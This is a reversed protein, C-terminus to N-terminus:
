FRLRATVEANRPALVFYRATGGNVDGSPFALRDFLNRGQVLVDHRGLRFTVGGDLVFFAPASLARDTTPALYSRSQYRGQANLM